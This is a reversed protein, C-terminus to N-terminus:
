EGERARKVGRTGRESEQKGGRKTKHENAKKGIEETGYRKGRSVKTGDRKDQARIAETM